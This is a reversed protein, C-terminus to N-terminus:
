ASMLREDAAWLNIRVILRKSAGWSAAPAARGLCEVVCPLHLLQLQLQLAARYLWILGLELGGASRLPARCLRCFGASLADLTYYVVDLSSPMM